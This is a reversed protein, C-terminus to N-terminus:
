RPYKFSPPIFLHKRTKRLRWWVQEPHHLWSLLYDSTRTRASTTASMVNHGGSSRCSCLKDESAREDEDCEAGCPRHHFKLCCCFCQCSFRRVEEECSSLEAKWVSFGSLFTLQWEAEKLDEQVHQFPFLCGLREKFCFGSSWGIVRSLSRCSSRRRRGKGRKEEKDEERDEQEEETM